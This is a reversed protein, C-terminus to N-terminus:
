TLVREALLAIGDRIQIEDLSAFGLLYAPQYDAPLNAYYGKLPRLGIGSKEARKLIEDDTLSGHYHIIMYLSANDASIHLLDEPFRSHLEELMIDHKGKYLKRMRNLHKEFYGQQIFETLISQSIRPVPCAHGSCKERYRSMLSSPLVMYGTRIAPSVAKSFTGIYIVKQNQDLSQLAPIPKGKYRFESDHDDEIIYREEKESAWDLLSQRRSISLVSGLPFQHSPTVYCIDASSQRLSRIDFEGHLLPIDQIHYGNSVLIQRASRYGPDEMAVVAKRGFLLCLMQLLYDLGSGVIINDSTCIVGRSGYLYASISQRLRRDGLPDGSIFNDPNDLQNKGISKWVSYPFHVTDVADPDFDYPFQGSQELSHSPASLLQRSPTFNQTHTISNVFYGRKERADIYGEAVLQGYATDVTSRSVQLNAALSRASPLKEPHSLRGSLIESKIYQYIQQYLPINSDTNLLITIMSGGQSVVDSNVITPFSPFFGRTLNANRVLPYLNM